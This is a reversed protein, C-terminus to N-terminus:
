SNLLFGFLGNSRRIKRYLQDLEVSNVPRGKHFHSILFGRKGISRVFEIQKPDDDILWDGEIKRIDKGVDLNGPDYDERCVVQAFYSRLGLKRLLWRARDRESHTWVSLTHGDRQLTNLLEVAGPRVVSGFDDTLTNDLDFVLHMAM